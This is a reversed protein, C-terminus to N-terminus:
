RSLASRISFSAAHIAVSANPRGSMAACAAVPPAGPSPRGSSRCPRRTGRAAPFSPRCRRGRLLAARAPTSPSRGGTGASQRRPRHAATALAAPRPPPSTPPPTARRCAPCPRRGSWRRRSPSRTARDTRAAAGSARCRGSGSPGAPARRRPDRARGARDPRPPSGATQRRRPLGRSRRRRRTRDRARASRARAARSDRVLDHAPRYGAAASTTGSRASRM